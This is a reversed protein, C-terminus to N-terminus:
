SPIKRNGCGSRPAKFCQPFADREGSGPELRKGAEELLPPKIECLGGPSQQQAAALSRQFQEWRARFAADLEAERRALELESQAMRTQLAAFEADLTERDCALDREAQELRRLRQEYDQLHEAPIAAQPDTGAQPPGPPACSSPPLSVRFSFPGIQLIAGDHLMAEEIEEGNLRTGSRSGCDRIHFGDALRVIVCHVNSVDPAVLGIDCGRAQGLVTVQRHLRRHKKATNGYTVILAPEALDLRDENNTIM